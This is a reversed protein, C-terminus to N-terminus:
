DAFIIIKKSKGSKAGSLLEVQPAPSTPPSRGRAFRPPIGFYHIVLLSHLLEEKAQANAQEFSKGSAYLKEVRKEHDYKKINVIFIPNKNAKQM